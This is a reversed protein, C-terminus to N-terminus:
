TSTQPEKIASSYCNLCVSYREVTKGDNIEALKGKEIATSCVYCMGSVIDVVNRPNDYLFAKLRKVAEPYKSGHLSVSKEDPV